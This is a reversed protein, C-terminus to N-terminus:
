QLGLLRLEDPRRENGRQRREAGVRLHLAREDGLSAAPEVEEADRDDLREALTARGIGDVRNRRSGLEVTRDLVIRHQREAPNATRSALAASAENVLRISRLGGRAQLRGCHRSPLSQAPRTCVSTSM